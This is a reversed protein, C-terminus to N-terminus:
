PGYRPDGLEEIDLSLAGKILDQDGQDYLHQAFGSLSPRDAVQKYEEIRGRLRKGREAAKRVQSEFQGYDDSRHVPLEVRELMGEIDELKILKRKIGPFRYYSLTGKKIQAYITQRSVGFHQSAKTISAYFPEDIEGLGEHGTVQEEKEGKDLHDQVRKAVKHAFLDLVKDILHKLLRSISSSTPTEKM